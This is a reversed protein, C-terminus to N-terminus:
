GVRNEVPRGDEKETRGFNKMDRGMKKSKSM